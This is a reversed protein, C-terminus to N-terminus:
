FLSFNPPKSKIEGFSMHHTPSFDTVLIIKTLNAPMKLRLDPLIDQLQTIENDATTPELPFDTTLHRSLNQTLEAFKPVIRRFVNIVGFIHRWTTISFPKTNNM